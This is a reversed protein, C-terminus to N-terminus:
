KEISKDKSNHYLGHVMLIPDRLILRLFVMLACPRSSMLRKAEGSSISVATSASRSLEVRREKPPKWSSDM